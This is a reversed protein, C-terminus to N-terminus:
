KQKIQAIPKYSFRHIKCPGYKKILQRHLATGYGKHKEFHYQPYLSSLRIIKNDRTVKAIVSALAISFVKNDGKIITKQSIPKKTKLKRNGDILVITNKFTFRTIKQLKTLNRKIALQTAQEINIKDITKPGVSSTVVKICSCHKTLVLIKARLSFSLQKSDKTYRLITQFSKNKRIKKLQRLDILVSGVTIPGAWPGRGAEDIGIVFNYKHKQQYYTETRLNM